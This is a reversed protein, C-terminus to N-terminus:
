RPATPPRPGPTPDMVATHFRRRRQQRSAAEVGAEGRARKLLDALQGRQHVTDLRSIWRSASASKAGCSPRPRGAGRRRAASCVRGPSRMSRSWAPPRRCPTEWARCCRRCWWMEWLIGELVSGIHTLSGRGAGLVEGVHDNRRGGAPISSPIFGHFRGRCCRRARPPQSVPACVVAAGAPIGRGVEGGGKNGLDPRLRPSAPSGTTSLPIRAGAADEDHPPAAYLAHDRARVVGHLAAM